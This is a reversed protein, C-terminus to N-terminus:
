PSTLSILSDIKPLDLKTEGIEGIERHNQFFYDRSTLSILSGIKALDLRKEGIERIERHNRLFTIV